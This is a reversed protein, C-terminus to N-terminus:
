RGKYYRCTTLLESDFSRSPIEKVAFNRSNRIGPLHWGRRLECLMAGDCWRLMEAFPEGEIIIYMRARVDVTAARTRSPRGIVPPRRPARRLPSMLRVPVALGTLSHKYAGCLPCLVGYVCLFLATATALVGDAQALIHVSNARPQAGVVQLTGRPRPVAARPSPFIRRRKYALPTCSYVCLRRRRYARPAAPCPCSTDLFFFPFFGLAMFFRNIGVQCGPGGEMWFVKGRICGIGPTCPDISPPLTNPPTLPPHRLYTNLGAFIHLLATPAPDSAAGSVDDM